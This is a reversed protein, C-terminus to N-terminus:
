RFFKKYVQSLHPDPQTHSFDYIKCKEQMLVLIGTDPILKLRYRAHQYTFSSTLVVLRVTLMLLGRSVHKLAYPAMKLSIMPWNCPNRSVSDVPRVPYRPYVSWQANILHATTRPASCIFPRGTWTMLRLVPREVCAFLGLIVHSCLVVYFALAKPPPSLPSLTVATFLLRLSSNLLLYINRRPKPGGENIIPLCSTLRFDVSVPSRRLFKSYTHSFHPNNHELSKRRRHARAVPYHYSTNFFYAEQM